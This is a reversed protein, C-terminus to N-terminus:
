AALDEAVRASLRGAGFGLSDADGEWGFWGPIPVEVLARLTVGAPLAQLLRSALGLRLRDTRPETVAYEVRCGAPYAPAYRVDEAEAVLRAIEIIREVEGGSFLILLRAHLLRRYDADDPGPRPEALYAGWADLQVGRAQEFTRWLWLGAFLGELDQARTGALRSLAENRPRRLYSPWRSVADAAHDDVHGSLLGAYPDGGPLLLLLSM